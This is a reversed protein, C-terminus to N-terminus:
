SFYKMLLFYKTHFIECIPFIEGKYCLLWVFANQTAIALYGIKMNIICAYNKHTEAGELSSIHVYTYIKLTKAKM